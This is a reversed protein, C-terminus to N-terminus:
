RGIIRSMETILDYGDWIIGIELSRGFEAIRDIGMLHNELIMKEVYNRDTGYIMCSQVSKDIYPAIEALEFIAYQFFLGFKGRLNTIREPLRPLTVVYLLNGYRKVQMNPLKTAYDCLMVYKDSVRIDALDYKKASLYVSDWFREQAQKIKQEEKGQWLLLHPTSCANQDMLYTDNYFQESLRVIERDSANLIAESGIIAFSYRDAFIIDKSRFGLPSEQIAAITQNGGWIVRLDALQSLRDTIMKDRGYRVIASQSEIERYEEKSFLRNMADCIIDVQEYPKSSARVINANGSLLGFLYTFAFNVPINSPAIHFAIGRGMRLNGDMYQQRLKQINSKRCYFSFAAVDPYNRVRKDNKIEKSLDDLFKCAQADFIQIPNKRKIPGGVLYNLDLDRMHIAVGGSKRM